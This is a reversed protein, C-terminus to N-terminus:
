LGCIRVFWWFWRMLLGQWAKRRRITSDSIFLLLFGTVLSAIMYICIHHRRSRHPGSFLQEATLVWPSFTSPILPTNSTDQSPVTLAYHLLSTVVPWSFISDIYAVRGKHPFIKNASVPLSFHISLSYMMHVLIRDSYGGHGMYTLTPENKTKWLSSHGYVYLFIEVHYCM